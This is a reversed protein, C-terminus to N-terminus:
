KLARGRGIAGAGDGSLWTLGNRAGVRVRLAEGLTLGTAVGEMTGLARRDALTVVGGDRCPPDGAALGVAAGIPPPEGLGGLVGLALGVGVGAGVALGVGDQVDPRSPWYTTSTIVM